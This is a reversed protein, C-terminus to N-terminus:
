TATTTSDSWRSAAMSPRSRPTTSTGRAPAGLLNGPDCASNDTCDIDTEASISSAFHEGGSAKLISIADVDAGPYDGGRNVTQDEVMVFRFNGANDPNNDPESDPNPNNPDDEDEEFFCTCLELDETEGDVCEDTVDINDDDDLTCICGEDLEPDCSSEADLDCAAAFLSMMLVLGILLTNREIKMKLRRPNPLM